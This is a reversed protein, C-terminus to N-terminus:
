EVMGVLLRYFLRLFFTFFLFFFLTFDNLGQSGQFYVAQVFVGPCAPSQDLARV